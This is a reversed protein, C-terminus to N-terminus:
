FKKKNEIESKCEKKLEKLLAPCMAMMIFLIGFAGIIQRM